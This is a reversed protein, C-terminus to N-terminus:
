HLQVPEVAESEEATENHMEECMGHQRLCKDFAERLAEADFNRRVTIRLHRNTKSDLTLAPDEEDGYFEIPGALSIGTAGEKLARFVASGSLFPLGDARRIQQDLTLRTAADLLNAATSSDALLKALPTAHKLWFDELEGYASVIQIPIKAIRLYKSLLSKHIGVANALDDQSDFHRLAELYEIGKEYSSTAKGSDETRVSRLFAEKDTLKEVRVSFAFNPHGHERLWRVSWLRRAGSLVEYSIPGEVSVERVTAPEVQEGARLLAKILDACNDETLRDYLRSHGEWLRCAEPDVLLRVDKVRKPSQINPPTLTSLLDSQAATGM